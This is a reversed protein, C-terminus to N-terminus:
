PQRGADPHLALCPWRDPSRNDRLLWCQRRVGDCGGNVDDAHGLGTQLDRDHLLSLM